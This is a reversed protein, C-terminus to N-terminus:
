ARQGQLRPRGFLLFAIALEAVALSMVVLRTQPDCFINEYSLAPLHQLKRQVWPSPQLAHPQFGPDPTGAGAIAIRLTEADAESSGVTVDQEHPRRYGLDRQAVRMLVAPDTRIAELRQREREVERRLVAVRHEQCQKAVDLAQLKRWEPMLVCPAFASLGTLVMVWFVIAGGIGPAPRAEREAHEQEAAM